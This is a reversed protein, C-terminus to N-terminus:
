SLYKMDTPKFPRAAHSKGVDFGKSTRTFMHQQIYVSTSVRGSEDRTYTVYLELLVGYGRVSSIRTDMFFAEDLIGAQIGLNSASGKQMPVQIVEMCAVDQGYQLPRM